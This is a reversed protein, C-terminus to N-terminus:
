ENVRQRVTGADVVFIKHDIQSGEFLLEIRQRQTDTIFVQGFRDNGVLQVLKAVRQDDLKDFIDDLLLIPKYGLRDFTFDFQALRVAIVFSKQQGQSGFKKLPYGDIIFHLDDKHIGVNTYRTAKDRPLSKALLQLLSEHSLASEYQIEVTESGGSVTEYYKQFIPKFQALFANRKEHILTAPAVMQADWLQLLDAEFRQQEAFQKLLANRQQLAKNYILLADLYVPDFQAIVGDIFRRRLESGDNILDRDYPSIMVLPIMGIHDALRDVEKKNVKFSKKTARKQVCGVLDPTKGTRQYLGHISFFQSDHKINQQDAANFYSKCFSLYYVADLVNTKGAGNAGIFCNIKESFLMEAAEYNKFNNLTLKQLYMWHCNAPLPVIQSAFM